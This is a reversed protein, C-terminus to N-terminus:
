KITILKIKQQLHKQNEGLSMHEDLNRMQM